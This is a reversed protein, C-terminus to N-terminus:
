PIADTIKHQNHELQFQFCFDCATLVDPFIDAWEIFTIIQKNDLSEWLGINLLKQEDQIRYLDFHHITFKTAEYVWHYSFSPSTVLKQIEPAYRKAFTKVFHTKGSGLEGLLAINSNGQQSFVKHPTIIKYINKEM